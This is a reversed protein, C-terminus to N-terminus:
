CVSNIDIHYTITSAKVQSVHLMFSIIDKEQNFSFPPCEWQEMVSWDSKVICQEPTETNIQDLKEEGISEEDFTSTNEIESVENNELANVDDQVSLPLTTHNEVPM